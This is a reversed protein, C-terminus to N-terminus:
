LNNKVWNKLVVALGPKDLNKDAIEIMARYVSGDDRSIREGNLALGSIAVAIATRKNGDLFPQSEALHYAYTAAIDYIDGSRYLYENRASALASDVLGSERIGFAGGYRSVSEDHLYLVENFTLFKPEGTSM